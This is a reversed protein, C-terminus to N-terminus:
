WIDSTSQKERGGAAMLPSRDTSIRASNSQKSPFTLGISIVCGLMQGGRDVIGDSAASMPDQTTAFRLVVDERSQQKLAVCLDLLQSQRVIINVCM